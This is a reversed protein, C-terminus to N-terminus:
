VATLHIGVPPMEGALTRARVERWGRARGCSGGVASLARARTCAHLHARVKGVRRDEAAAARPERGLCGHLHSDRESQWQNSEAQEQRRRSAM